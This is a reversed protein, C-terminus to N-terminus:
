INFHPYLSVNTKKALERAKPTFDSNTLVSGRDAHYYSIAAIVEQVAHEGVNGSYYKCQFCVTDGNPHVAIIDAGFDGTAPTLRINRYGLDKLKNACAKEYYQGIQTTNATMVPDSITREQYSNQSTSTESKRKYPFCCITGIIMLIIGSIGLVFDYEFSELCLGIIFLSFGIVTMIFWIAKKRKNIVQSVWWTILRQEEGETIIPLNYLTDDDVCYCQGKKPAIIGKTTGQLYVNPQFVNELGKFYASFLILRLNTYRGRSYIKQIETFFSSSVSCSTFYEFDYVFLYIVSNDTRSDKQQREIIEDINFVASSDNEAYYITHPLERYDAFIIPSISLFVFRSTKPTTYLLTDVLGRAFGDRDESNSGVVLLSDRKILKLYLDYAFGDPTKWEKKM